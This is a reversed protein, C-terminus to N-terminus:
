SPHQSISNSSSFPYRSFGDVLLQFHPDQDQEQHPPPYLLDSFLRCLILLLSLSLSHPRGPLPFLVSSPSFLHLPDPTPTLPSTPFPFSVTSFAPTEGKFDMKSPNWSSFRSTFFNFFFSVWLHLKPISTVQLSLIGHSIYSSTKPPMLALTIKREQAHVWGPSVSIWFGLRGEWLDKIRCQYVLTGVGWGSCGLLELM